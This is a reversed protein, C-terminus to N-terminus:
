NILSGKEISVRQIDADSESTDADVATIFTQADLVKIADFIIARKQADLHSMIDDLLIIPVRNHWNMHSYIEGLFISVLLSKQEGTSCQKANVNRASDYVILDSRHISANTRGSARDIDRTHQLIECIKDELKLASIQGIEKEVEGDFVVKAKPLKIDINEIINNLYECFSIRAEAIILYTESIKREIIEVWKKDYQSKRIINLREKILYSYKALSSSHNKVFGSIIGDFFRKKYSNGELFIQDMQPALWSVSINELIKNQTKLKVGDFLFEKNSQDGEVGRRVELDFKGFDGSAEAIVKWSKESSDMGIEQLTAGRIGRGPVLLSISELLNTKGIGNAGYILVTSKEPSFELKSYNRFNFLKIKHIKSKNLSRAM